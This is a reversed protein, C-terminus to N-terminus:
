KSSRFSDSGSDLRGPNLDPRDRVVRAEHSEADSQRISAVNSAAAPPKAAPESLWDPGSGADDGVPSAGKLNKSPRLTRAIQIIMGTVVGALYIAFGLWFLDFDTM